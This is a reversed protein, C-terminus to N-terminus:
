GEGADAAELEEPLFQQEEGTAVSRCIYFNTANGDDNDTISGEWVCLWGGRAVEHRVEEENEYAYNSVRYLKGKELM